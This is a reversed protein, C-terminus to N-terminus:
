RCAAKLSKLAATSGALPFSTSNAGMRVVLSSGRMLDAVLPGDLPVFDGGLVLDMEDLGFRLATANGDIEIFGDIYGDSGAEALFAPHFVTGDTAWDSWFNMRTEFGTRCDLNFGARDQVQVSAIPGMDANSFTWRATGDVAVVATAKAPRYGQWDHALIEDLYTFSGDAQQRYFVFSCGATGCFMMSSGDCVYGGYDFVADDRGDSDIDARVLFRDSFEAVKCHESVKKKEAAVAADLSPYTQAEAAGALCLLIISRGLIRHMVGGSPMM